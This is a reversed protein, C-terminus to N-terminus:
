SCLVSPILIPHICHMCHYLWLLRIRVRDEASLNKGIFIEKMNETVEEIRDDTMEMLNCKRLLIGYAMQKEIMDARFASQDDRCSTFLKTADFLSMLLKARQLFVDSTVLRGLFHHM